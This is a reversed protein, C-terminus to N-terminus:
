GKVETKATAKENIANTDAFLMQSLAGHSFCIFALTPFSKIIERSALGPDVPKSHHVLKSM